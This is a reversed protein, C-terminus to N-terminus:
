QGTAPTSAAAAPAELDPIPDGLKRDVKEVKPDGWPGTVHFERTGAQILPKRLFVQALFTGLGVAPNIVSYALSATGANIEPVVIVRLDQTERAIDASGEMLVAAQVGRMRLNNTSAVGQKIRLDGTINDFAFGEQFVDRFDLALRRPLSQLSLVSLFRAAGPEAKLFQGADIGVTVNGSMSPFDVDLPSGSWEVNGTLLGKGGKVAHGAGLRELLGGANTVDLRFAMLVRRRAAGGGPSPAPSAWAGTASLQADPSALVLKSLRWDRASERSEGAARNQAEVELRGLRKGRLEFDDVIVDLAPVTGPQQELLNEVHEADSKPLSLRALRAYVRGASGRRAPRYEVYGSAQESDINARWDGDVQSLGAVLRRVQRTGTDLQGIRLAITTPAYGGAAAGDISAGGLLKDAVAEWADAQLTPLNVNAAVGTAPLPLTDSVGIGGRQVRPAPGSLDRTYSAQVISGLEVRLTDRPAAATSDPTLATQVHLALPVEAAKRLPAPLDIALGVLNSTLNVETQGHVVGVVLKYAAQGTMTTALKSLSGLEGSARRIGEANVTGQANFRMSGDPQTGGDLSSEGGYVRANAGAIAMGKQTFDIRGRAGSLLPTEPSLRVDNGALTVSGAVTSAGLDTLPLALALRLDATGAATAKDLLKGIWGGVPTVNVYDVLGALPGKANGDITLVPKDTLNRINGQVKSLEVGGVQASANRIELSARDIVLEGALRTFAPWPSTFGPETATAPVSPVYALTADDVKGAIRFEGDKAARSGVFPFDWLDGKVRFTAGSVTGGRVANAVYRRASEPIGLPLYRAVRLANGKAIRGDLQLVGPLRGGRAVGSGAGTAWNAELTGQADANAFNAGKVNLVVKPAAGAVGAAAPQITWQLQAALQDFPLLPEEFVGPFELAGGALGLQATGGTDSADLQLTANRLGPRGIGHPEPSPMAALTAGALLGKVQYHQPADLAGDWRAVLDSISGQPKLEVLLRRVADGLPVRGAVQAILGVELRDASFEGGAIPQGQAQRLMLKLDGQPWRIGDATVFSFRQLAISSGAADRTAVIRGQVQEFGMPEVSSGLRLAVERLAVDVTAAVPEGNKLDFWGRLSGDGENLEFPLSVHRSLERVHARPLDAHVTGSWRSWDGRRALLPQTFRGQVTFREGWGPQPTADLRVDHHLLGNRVLLQVETLALPVADRTEDIWRLTGGRIVFEPQSFFWDAAAGDDAQDAKKFDLGAVFVRGKADRRVELEAGEILLQAFRLELQLLSRPSVAAMVRPLRLAERGQPDLLAVERLEISPVWGSSTVVIGGIKVPVGLAASARAEIPARWQEIRPLIGWHLTLWALLLLSWAAVVLWAAVRLIRRLASDKRSPLALPASEAASAPLISSM